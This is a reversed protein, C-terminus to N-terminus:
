LDVNYLLKSAYVSLLPIRHLIQLCSMAWMGDRTKKLGLKAQNHECTEQEQTDGGNPKGCARQLEAGAWAAADVDFSVSLKM